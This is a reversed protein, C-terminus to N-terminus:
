SAMNCSNIELTYVFQDNIAPNAIQTMQLYLSINSQMLSTLRPYLEQTLKQWTDTLFVSNFVLKSWMQKFSHMTNDQALSAETKKKSQMKRISTPWQTTFKNPLAIDKLEKVTLIIKQDM